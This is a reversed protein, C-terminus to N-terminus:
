RPGRFNGEWDRLRDLSGGEAMLTEVRRQFQKWERYASDTLALGVPCEPRWHLLRTILTEYGLRVDNPMAVPSLKRRGIPSEPIVYLFRALLGRDRM